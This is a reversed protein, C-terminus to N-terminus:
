VNLAHLASRAHHTQEAAGRRQVGGTGLQLLRLLLLRRRGWGTFSACLEHPLDACASPAHNGRSCLSTTVSCLSFTRARARARVPPTRPARPTLVWFGQNFGSSFCVLSECNGKFCSLSHTNNILYKKLSRRVFHM